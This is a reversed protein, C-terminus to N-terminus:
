ECSGLGVSRSVLIRVGGSYRVGFGRDRGAGLRASKYSDGVSLTTTWLGSMKATTEFIKGFFVPPKKDKTCDEARWENMFQGEGERTPFRKAM